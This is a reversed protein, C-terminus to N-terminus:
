SIKGNPQQERSLNDVEVSGVFRALRERVLKNLVEVDIKSIPNDLNIVFM